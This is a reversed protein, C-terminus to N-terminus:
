AIKLRSRLEEIVKNGIPKKLVNVAGLSMAERRFEASDFGTIFIYKPIKVRKKHMKKLLELGDYDPVKYDSVVIDIEKTKLLHKADSGSTATYINRWTFEQNLFASYFEMLDDDDEIILISKDSKDIM